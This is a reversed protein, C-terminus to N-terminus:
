ENDLFLNYLWIFFNSEKVGEVVIPM